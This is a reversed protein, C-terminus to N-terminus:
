NQNAGANEQWCSERTEKEDLIYRFVYEKNERNSVQEDSFIFVSLASIAAEEFIGAPESNIVRINTARNDRSFDYSLHVWGEICNNIAEQPYLVEPSPGVFAHAMVPFMLLSARLLNHMKENVM